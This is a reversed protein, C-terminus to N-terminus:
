RSARRPRCPRWMRLEMTAARPVGLQAPQGRSPSASPPHEWVAAGCMPRADPAIRVVVGHGCALCRLKFMAGHRLSHGSSSLRVDVTAVLLSGSLVLSTVRAIQGRIEGDPNKPTHVNVHTPTTVNTEVRRNSRMSM